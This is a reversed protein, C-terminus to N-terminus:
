QYIYDLNTTVIPQGPLGQKVVASKPLGNSNYLYDYTFKDEPQLDADFHNEVTTNNKSVVQWFLTMLERQAYLPNSKQDYQYSVHGTREMQGPESTAVQKPAQGSRPRDERPTSRAPLHGRLGLADIPLCDVQLVAGGHHFTDSLSGGRRDDVEGPRGADPRRPLVDHRVQSDVDHARM